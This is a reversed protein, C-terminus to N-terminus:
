LLCLTTFTSHQLATNSVCVEPERIGNQISDRIVLTKYFDSAGFETRFYLPIDNM